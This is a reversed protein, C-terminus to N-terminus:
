EDLFLSLDENSDSIAGIYDSLNKAFDERSGSPSIVLSYMSSYADYMERFASDIEEAEKGDLEILIINKYQQRIDEHATDVTEQTEDSNKALWEFASEVMTDSLKGLNKWYNNEYSGVNAVIISAANIDTRCASVLAKYEELDFATEVTEDNATKSENNDSPGTATNGSCSCLSIGICVFLFLTLFRKM